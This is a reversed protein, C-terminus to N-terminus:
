CDKSLPPRTVSFGSFYSCLGPRKRRPKQALVINGVALDVLGELFDMWRCPGGVLSAVLPRSMDVEEAEDALWTQKGRVLYGGQWMGFVVIGRNFSSSSASAARRTEALAYTFWTSESYLDQMCTRGVSQLPGLSVVM